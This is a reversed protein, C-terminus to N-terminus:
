QTDFLQMQQKPQLKPPHFTGVILFPNPAIKHFKLTTGLFFHLDKNLAFDDYYKERVKSVAIQENGDTRKLCHFYLMGTEWDAITLKSRKGVNDEFVYSFRYPVKPGVRYEYEIEEPTQFMNLQQSLNRLIELKESSWDRDTQEAVFDIIKTPKFLALSTGDSKAKDILAQMNVFATKNKFIIRRREDWDTKTTKNSAVITPLIPRFSEPRFDKTNRKIDAEVWTYKPYKQDYDLRNFPVPYLRVWSGDELFGATCVLEAYEKSITPYTKVVIYVRKKEPTM